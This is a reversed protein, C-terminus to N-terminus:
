TRCIQGAEMRAERQRIERRMWDRYAHHEKLRVRFGHANLLYEISQWKEADKVPEGRATEWNQERWRAYWRNELAAALYPCETWITLSCPRKLRGLAEELAYVAAQNETTQELPVWKWVDANRGDQLRAELLYLYSGDRKQPGRIGTDIYINVEDTM